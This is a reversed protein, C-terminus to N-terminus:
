CDEQAGARYFSDHSSHYRALYAAGQYVAKHLQEVLTYTSNRGKLVQGLQFLAAM